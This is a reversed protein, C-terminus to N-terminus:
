NTTQTIVGVNGTGNQGVNAINANTVSTQTLTLSNSTGIQTAFSGAGTLGQLINGNGNQSITATNLDGTQQLRAQNSSGQQSITALNQNSYTGGPNTPIGQIIEAYNGGGAVTTNQNITASNGLLGAEPYTQQQTIKATNGGTSLSGQNVTAVNNFANTIQSITALDGAGGGAQNITAQNNSSFDNQTVFGKNNQGSQTVTATNKYSDGQGGGNTDVGLQNVTAQNTSGTQTVTATNDYSTFSGADGNQNVTATHGGAGSENVTASNNRSNDNQNVTATSGVTGSQNITADNGDMGAGGSNNNQRITANNAGSFTQLITALNGRSAGATGGNQEVTATANFANPGGSANSYGQRVNATNDHSNNSQSVTLTNNDGFQNTTTKNGSSSGLGGGNQNVTATQVSGLNDQRTDTYNGTSNNNQNVTVVQNFGRQYTNAYNGGVGTVASIGAPNPVNNANQVPGPGSAATIPTGSGGTNNNQNITSKNTNGEQGIQAFGSKNGLQNIYAQNGQSGYFLPQQITSAYNGVNTIAGTSTQQINSILNSGAQTANGTQQNGAQNLTANNNQAFSMAVFGLLAAGTLTLKKM